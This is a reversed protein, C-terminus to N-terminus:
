TRVGLQGCAFVPSDVLDQRLLQVRGVFANEVIRGIEHVLHFPNSHRLLLTKHRSALRAIRLGLCLVRAFLGDCIIHSPLCVNFLERLLSEVSRFPHHLCVTHCLVGPSEKTSARASLANPLCRCCEVCGCGEEVDRIYPARHVLLRLLFDLICFPIRRPNDLRDLLAYVGVFRIWFM